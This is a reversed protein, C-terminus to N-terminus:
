KSDQLIEVVETFLMDNEEAYTAIASNMENAPIDTSSTYATYLNNLDEFIM